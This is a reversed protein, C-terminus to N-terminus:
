SDHPESASSSSSSSSSSRSRHHHAEAEHASEHPKHDEQESHHHHTSHEQEVSHSDARHHSVHSSSEAAPEARPSRTRRGTSHSSSSDPMSLYHDMRRSSRSAELVPHDSVTARNERRKERLEASSTYNKSDGLDSRPSRYAFDGTSTTSRPTTATEEDDKQRESRRSTTESAKGYDDRPYYYKRSWEHDKRDKILSRYKSEFHKQREADEKPRDARKEAPVSWLYISRITEHSRKKPDSPEHEYMTSYHPYYLRGNRPYDNVSTRGEYPAREARKGIKERRTVVSM